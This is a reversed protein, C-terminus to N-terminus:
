HASRASAVADGEAPHASLLGILDELSLVIQRFLPMGQAFVHATIALEIAHRHRRLFDRVTEEDTRDPALLREMTAWEIEARLPADDVSISLEIPFQPDVRVDTRLVRTVM